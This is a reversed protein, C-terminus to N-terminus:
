RKPKGHMRREQRKARRRRVFRLVGWYTPPTCVLALLAGGIFFSGTVEGGLQGLATWFADSLMSLGGVRNLEEVIGAVAAVDCGFLGVM